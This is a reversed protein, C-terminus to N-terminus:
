LDQNLFFCFLFAIEAEQGVQLSASKIPRPPAWMATNKVLIGPDNLHMHDMSWVKLFM